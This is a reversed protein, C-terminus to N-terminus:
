AISHEDEELLGRLIQLNNSDIESERGAILRTLLNKVDPDVIIWRVQANSIAATVVDNLQASTFDSYRNLRSVLKHTQAFNASTALDRILLDKEFEDALKIAPYHDKFFSSIRRYPVLESNKRNVWEDLLFANFRQDDIPSYYDKDDTVFYLLEGEPVATLLIEWNIADGLSDRKGPPNGIDHRLRARNIVEENVILDEAQAFLQRITRDSKLTEAEVAESIKRVLTAHSREYERQYRRLDEYEDYHKCLAPFQFNLKQDRLRKLGDAIRIERNRWFEVRVQEPLWLRIKRQRLLVTLKKLEELDDSTLHYFSLFVNTDIFLNM